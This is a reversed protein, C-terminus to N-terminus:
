LVFMGMFSRSKQVAVVAAIISGAQDTGVEAYSWFALACTGSPACTCPLRAICLIPGKPAQCGAKKHEM